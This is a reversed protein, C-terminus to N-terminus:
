LFLSLSAMVARPEGATVHSAPVLSTEGSRSFKSGYVFQGDYWSAGLVNSVDVSLEVGARRVAARLGVLFVDRGWEGYPMPRRLQAQMGLGLRGRLERGEVNALAGSVAADTRMVLQPVYPLLAGIPHLADSAEFAARTYTANSSVMLWTRPRLVADATLGVRRTGPTRENRATQPDFALDESLESHFAALSLQARASPAYRLGLEQSRVLTLSPAQGSSLARVQPSRFGEGYSAIVHLGRAASWDAVLKKGLNAGQASREQAGQTEGLVVADRAAYSLMDARLGGRFVLKKTAWVSADVYGAVDLARLSADVWTELPADSVESLRRQSQAIRDERASIGVEVADRASLISLTKKYSARLGVTFADHLQQTNDSQPTPAGGRGTDLLYGTFNQRLSLGRFVVFPTVSWQGAATAKSVEVLLQTRTSSGGQKPDLTAFRDVRGADIDEARLVGPADFRGAYSSGLVRVKANAVSGVVQAVVSGRTAARNPGFGETQYAEFAAFTEASEGEPHFALVLRRAGFSGASSKLTLGPEDYGLAFQLSGAVAFDGQQPAYSGPQARVSQVVEPILFHLDAYGQGHINSVENVPIGGVSIELDQGHQADFGRYFIQHAKGEGSHQTIQLGPVVQMLDSATRHPAAGLVDPARTAESASRPPAPAHVVVDVSAKDSPAAEIGYARPAALLAAPLFM